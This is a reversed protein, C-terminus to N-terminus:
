LMSIRQINVYNASTRLGCGGHRGEIHKIRFHLTQFGHGTATRAQFWYQQKKASTGTPM